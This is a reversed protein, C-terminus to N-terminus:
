IRSCAPFQPSSIRKYAPFHPCFPGFHPNQAWLRSHLSHRPMKPKSRPDVLDSQRTKFSPHCLGSWIFLTGLPLDQQRITPDQTMSLKESCEGKVVFKNIPRGGSESHRFPGDPASGSDHCVGEQCSRGMLVCVSAM